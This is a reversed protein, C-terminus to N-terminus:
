CLGAVIRSRLAIDPPASHSADTLRLRQPSLRRGPRRWRTSAQFRAVMTLSSDWAGSSALGTSGNIIPGTLSGLVQLQFDIRFPLHTLFDTLFSLRSAAEPSHFVLPLAEQSGLGAESAPYFM